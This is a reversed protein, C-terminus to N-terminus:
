LEVWWPLKREIEEAPADRERCAMAPQRESKREAMAKFMACTALVAESPKAQAMEEAMAKEIAPLHDRPNKM